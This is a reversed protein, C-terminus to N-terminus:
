KLTQGSPENYTVTWKNQHSMKGMAFPWNELVIAIICIMITEENSM